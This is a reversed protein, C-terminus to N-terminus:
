HHFGWAPSSAAMGMMPSGAPRGFASMSPSLMWPGQNLPPRAAQTVPGSMPVYASPPVPAPIRATGAAAVPYPYVLYPVGYAPQNQYDDVTGWDQDSAASTATDEDYTQPPAGPSPANIAQDDDGSGDPATSDCPGSAGDKTCPAQPIELVKDATAADADIAPGEPSTREWSADVSTGSVPAEQAFAARASVFVTMALTAFVAVFLRM